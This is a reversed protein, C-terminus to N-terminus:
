LTQPTPWELIRRKLLEADTISAILPDNFRLYLANSNLTGKGAMAKVPMIMLIASEPCQVFVVDVNANREAFKIWRKARSWVDPGDYVKRREREIADPAHTSHWIEFHGM